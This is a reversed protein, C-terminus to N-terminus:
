YHSEINRDLSKLGGSPGLLVLSNQNSVVAGLLLLGHQLTRSLGCPDGPESMGKRQEQNASVRQTDEYRASPGCEFCFVQSPTHGASQCGSGSGGGWGGCRVEAQQPLDCSLAQGPPQTTAALPCFPTTERRHSVCGGVWDGM